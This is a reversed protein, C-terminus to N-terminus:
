GVVEWTANKGDDKPEELLSDIPEQYMEILALLLNEKNTLEEWIADTLEQRIGRHYQLFAGAFLQPVGILPKATVDEINFGAQSMQKVTKRTYGLTYDRGDSAKIKITKM